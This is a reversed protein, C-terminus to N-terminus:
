YNPVHIMRVLYPRKHKFEMDRWIEKVNSPNEIVTTWSYQSACTAFSNHMEVTWYGSSPSINICFIIMNSASVDFKGVRLYCGTFAYMYPGLFLKFFSIRSCKLQSIYKKTCTKKCKYVPSIGDHPM